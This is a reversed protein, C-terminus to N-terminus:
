GKLENYEEDSDLDYNFNNIKELPTAFKVALDKDRKFGNLYYYNDHINLYIYSNEPIQPREPM